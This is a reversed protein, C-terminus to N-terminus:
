PETLATNLSLKPNVEGGAGQHAQV